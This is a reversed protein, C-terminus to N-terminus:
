SGGLGAGDGRQDAGGPGAFGGDDAQDGGEVDGGVPCTKRRRCRDRWRGGPCSGCGIEAHHQLVGEQEVAGDAFVDGEGAGVGGFLLDEFGAADGADVLEGLVEFLLVVGDDALAADLEGAALALADGDGAGDQGVRADQDEVFGGGAEVGFGLGSM